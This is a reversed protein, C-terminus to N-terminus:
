NHLQRLVERAEAEKRGHLRMTAQLEDEAASVNKKQLYAKALYFHALESYAPEDLSITSHFYQVALDIQDTLLYCTALYFNFRATRPSRKVADRLGPIAHAYDGRSYDQMARRFSEEAEDEAGRLAVGTYPPAEVRALAELSSPVARSSPESQAAAEPNAEVRPTSVRQSPERRASYWWLGVAFLLAVALFAPTWTWMRRELAGGARSYALPERRLESQLMLGTRLQAFCSACEFYHKEFEEREQEPLRELLYGELIDREEVEKCNM